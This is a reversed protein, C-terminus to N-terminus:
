VVAVMRELPILAKERTASPVKVEYRGYRLADRIKELSIMNMYPCAAEDHAAIFEKDPNEKRLRHLLGVETAVIFTRAESNRAYSLMGDTSLVLGHAEKPPIALARTTCGCEPHILLEAGPNQHVKKLMTENEIAAHVHCEGHWLHINKRGTMRIVHSGLFFDPLFLIDRNPDIAEVVKVANASTCCYDSLAKISASTNVYSVVVADPYEQKWKLLQEETITDALSCGAEKDPILVTKDPCLISATEAMFYVGAMILVDASSKQAWRALALSDGLFDAIDQIPGPEYNHALIVANHQAKLNQIEEMLTETRTQAMM